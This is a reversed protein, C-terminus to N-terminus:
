GTKRWRNEGVFEMLDAASLPTAFAYGQLTNCGLTKLIRAHEMTEVGEATVEIGLSHGIDIISAVLQRQKKSKVIPMVLCRDIKLRRPNLQLLSVISAYGTGFDDIEIDIGLTKLREINTAVTKDTDDLFISELLEFSLTGPEIALGDLSEILGADHLRGASVNVSVKPIDLGNAKWRTAQWLAQELILRDIIPVVNLEGAIGLFADPSLLGETPHEWRALAEVGVIDLTRADFQPQFFPLFEQRELGNLIDDAMCKNRVVEAELNDTFFQFCNRGSEKARYLAIDANILLRRRAKDSGSASAIGVSAGFRCEHGEFLVPKRMQTLIRAALKELEATKVPNTLVIVFEDGGTRALFDDKRISGKLIDAAHALMADGAAHGLTDNIQKFRDLDVHLLAQPMGIETRKALLVRDLYRRNPLGTLSDHLSNHEMQARAQELETNRAEANRKATTLHEQMEVDASVDWNIGVIHQSGDATNYVAGMARITRITGESTRVRFESQYKGSDALADRFEQEARDIDDPHLAGRWVEYENVDDKPSLGYLEKMRDDWILEGTAVNMEWIGIESTDLALRLRKSIVELQKQSQQLEVSQSRRQNFLHGSIFVPLIFFAGFTLVLIRILWTNPPAQNWGNRPVAAIQWSGNPLHIEAVVPNNEGVKAPGFFREGNEGTGDKGTISIEISLDPDLLGSDQYLRDVDIVAAVLGWFREKSTAPNTFVPFRAVFGQGGQMLEVPGALILKRTERARLAAERQQENKRFDLGLAKENGKIPHILSIVLDPAAAIHRLQSKDALLRAALTSFREQTIDPETTIASVLGRVLQINGNINRELDAAIHRLDAGIKARLSQKHTYRNQSEIFGGVLAVVIVALGISLVNPNFYSRRKTRTGTDSFPM